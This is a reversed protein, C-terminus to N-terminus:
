ESRLAASHLIEYSMGLVVKHSEESRESHCRSPSPIVTRRTAYNRMVGAFCPLVRVLSALLLPQGKRVAFPARALAAIRALYARVPFSM